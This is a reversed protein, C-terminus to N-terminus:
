KKCALIRGYLIQRLTSFPYFRRTSDTVIGLGIEMEDLRQDPAGMTKRFGPPYTRGELHTGVAKMFLMSLRAYWGPCSQILRLSPEHQKASNFNTMEIPWTGLKAGRADGYVAQGTIHDWYSQTEDDILLM